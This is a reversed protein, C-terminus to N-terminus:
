KTKGRILDILTARTPAEVKDLDIGVLKAAELLEDLRMREIPKDVLPPPPNANGTAGEDLPPVPAVVPNDIKEIKISTDIPKQISDKAAKPNKLLLEPSKGTIFMAAIDETTIEGKQYLEFLGMSVQYRKLEPRIDGLAASVPIFRKRGLDFVFFSTLTEVHRAEEIQQEITNVVDSM